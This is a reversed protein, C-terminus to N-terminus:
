RRRSFRVDGNPLDTHLYRDDHARHHHFDCLLVGDELNTSGGRSWPRRHHADCWPAPVTCGEARCRRDRIRLAKRQPPSFLRASRGLDLIESDGGLVAPIVKATCALRRAQAATIRDDDASVLGAVALEARLADLTVTVVVTTSDGGHLPLRQPDVAELFACFAHGRQRRAPIQDGEGGTMADHRPSTFAELYTRLRHAVADPVLLNIRTCGNGAPQFTLATTERALREEADLARAEHAEGVEPAVVDLIKRGLVRLQRPAFDAAFGILQAEARAPVDEPLDALPLADLADVIVEAQARNVRGDALADAVGTWHGTLAVALRLDRRRPGADTRTRQALWAGPDRAGEDAALDDAAALVRLGLAAVQDGIRSLELLVAAKESTSLLEVPVDDLGDGLAATLAAVCALVPHTLVGPAVVSM